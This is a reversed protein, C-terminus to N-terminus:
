PNWILVGQKETPVSVDFDQYIEADVSETITVTDNVSVPIAFVEVTFRTAEFSNMDGGSSIVSGCGMGATGAASFESDTTSDRETSGTGCSITTGEVRLWVQDTNNITGSWGSGIMSWSGSVCKYMQMESNNFELAYMNSDDVIRAALITYDDSSGVSANYIRAEYDAAYGDAPASCLHADSFSGDGNDVTGSGSLQMGNSPGDLIVTSWANGTTDPSRGALNTGATGGFGDDFILAM